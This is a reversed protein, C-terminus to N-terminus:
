RGHSAQPGNPQTDPGGDGKDDLSLCKKKGSTCAPPADARIPFEAGALDVGTANDHVALRVSHPLETEGKWHDQWAIRGDEGQKAFHFSMSLPGKLLIVADRPRAEDLHMRPGRWVARRRVLQTAGDSEEISLSVVEEGQPGSARGGATIFTVKPPGDASGPEAAFAVVASTADRQVVFRAAAFDHDLSDIALALQENVDVARTGRDFFLVGQRILTGLSMLVMAAIALAALTEVLTFGARAKASVIM